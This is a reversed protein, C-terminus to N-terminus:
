SKPGSTSKESTSAQGTKGYAYGGVGGPILGILVNLIDRVLQDKGLWALCGIFVLVIVVVIGVWVYRWKMHTTDHARKRENEGAKERLALKAYEFSNADAKLRFDLERQKLKLDESQLDLFREILEPAVQEPKNNSPKQPLNNAM